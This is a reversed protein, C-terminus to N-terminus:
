RPPSLPPNSPSRLARVTLAARTRPTLEATSSPASWDPFPPRGNVAESANWVVEGCRHRATPHHLALLLTDTARDYRRLVDPGSQCARSLM